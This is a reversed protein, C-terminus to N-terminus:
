KVIPGCTPVLAKVKDVLQAQTLGSGSFQGALSGDPKYVRILPYEFAEAPRRAAYESPNDTKDADIISTSCLSEALANADLASWLARCRSCTARNGLIAVTPGGEACIVSRPASATVATASATATDGTEEPATSVVPAAATPIKAGQSAAMLQAINGCLLGMANLSGDIGTSQQAAKANKVGAGLDEATGDAFLGEAAVESAKDGTGVISVRSETISGDKNTTKTYATARTLCGSLCAAAALMMLMGILTMNKHM